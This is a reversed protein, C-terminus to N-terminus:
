RRAMRKWIEWRRPSDRGQERDDLGGIYRGTIGYQIAGDPMEQVDLVLSKWRKLYRLTQKWRTMKQNECAEMMDDRWQYTEDPTGLSRVVDEVTKAAALLRGVEQIEEEEPTSFYADRKSELLRGGCWFCYRLILCHRGFVLHYENMREDFEIPCKPNAAHREPM